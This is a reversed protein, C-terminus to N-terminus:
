EAVHEVLQQREALLEEVSPIGIADEIEAMRSRVVIHDAMLSFLCRTGKQTKRRSTASTTERQHPRQAPCPTHRWSSRPRRKTSPKGTPGSVRANMPM